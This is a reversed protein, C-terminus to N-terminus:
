SRRPRKQGRSSGSWTLLKAAGSSVHHDGASGADIERSAFAERSVDHQFKGGPVPAPTFETGQRQLMGENESEPRLPDVGQSNRDM